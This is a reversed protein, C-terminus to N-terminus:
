PIAAVTIKLTKTSVDLKAKCSNPDAPRLLQVDISSETSPVTLRIVSDGVFELDVDQASSAAPVRVSAVMVTKGNREEGCLQLTCALAHAHHLDFTARRLLCLM